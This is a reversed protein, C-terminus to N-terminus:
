RYAILTINLFFFLFVIKHLGPCLKTRTGTPLASHQWKDRSRPLCTRCFPIREWASPWERERGNERHASRRLGFCGSASPGRRSATQNEARARGRFALPARGSWCRRPVHTRALALSVSQQARSSAWCFRTVLGVRTAARLTHPFTSWDAAQRSTSIRLRSYATIGTTQHARTPHQATQPISVKSM